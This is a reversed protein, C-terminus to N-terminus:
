REGVRDRQLEQLGDDAGGARRTRRREGAAAAEADDGRHDDGEDGGGMGLHEGVRELGGVLQRDARQQEAEHEREDRKAPLGDHRQPGSTTVPTAVATTSVRLRYWGTHSASITTAASTSARRWRRRAWTIAATRSGSRRTPPHIAFFSTSKPRGVSDLQNPM